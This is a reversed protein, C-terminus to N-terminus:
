EQSFPYRSLFFSPFALCSDPMGKAMMCIPQMYLRLTLMATKCSLLIVIRLRIELCASIQASINKCIVFADFADSVAALKVAAQTHIFATPCSQATFARWKMNGFIHLVAQIFKHKSRKQRNLFAIHLIDILDEPLRRM